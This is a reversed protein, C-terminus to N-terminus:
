PLFVFCELPQFLSILLARKSGTGTFHGWDVIRQARVRSELAQQAAHVAAKPPRFSTAKLGSVPETSAAYCKKRGRRREERERLLNQLGPTWMWTKTWM